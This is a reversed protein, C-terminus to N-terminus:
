SVKINLQDSQIIFQGHQIEQIVITQAFIGIVTLQYRFARNLSEFYESMSIPAFDQADTIVNRNYVDFPSDESTIGPQQAYLSFCLFTFFSINFMILKKM